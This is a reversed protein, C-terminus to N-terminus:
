RYERAMGEVIDFSEDGDFRGPDFGRIGDDDGLVQAALREAIGPARMVGHGQWGTAVFVGDALEGVLPDGDPTATCLGAWSREAPWSWGVAREQYVASEALFPEDAAPDWDDPDQEVPETGDGLLLGEGHPRLYFGNTADFLMPADVDVPGTVLAQVRYPSVALPAVDTVVQRTHAGAAVVVADYETAGGDAGTGDGAGTGNATGTGDTTAVAGDATVMVPTGERVDVDNLRAMLALARTYAEPDVAGADEAVAAVAVDGTVLDPFREGLAPGDLLTAAVGHDRMRPVQERIVAAASRDADEEGPAPTRALWVYPRDEFTFSGGGSLARFRELSRAALDADRRDAFADYCIGAARGTSGAAVEEAEYLVVDAGRDALDHAVTVGVAGGGVVAVHM